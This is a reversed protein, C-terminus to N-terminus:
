LRILLVQEFYWVSDISQEIDQQLDDLEGQTILNAYDLVSFNLFYEQGQLVIAIDQVQAKGPAWATNLM